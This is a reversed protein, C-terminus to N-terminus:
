PAAPAAPVPAAPVPAAPEAPAREPVGVEEEEREEEPRPYRIPADPLPIIPRRPVRAALPARTDLDPM